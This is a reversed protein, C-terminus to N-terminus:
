RWARPRHCDHDAAAAAARGCKPPAPGSPGAARDREAELLAMLPDLPVLPYLDLVVRYGFEAVPKLAFLDPKVEVKLDFVVRVTDVAKRGLRIGSIFPDSAHVRGPLQVLESSLDIGDLDLVLRDPNRLVFFNHPIPASSEVIVRTYEQAPWVRASGVRIPQAMAVPIAGFAAPAVLWQLLRRRQWSVRIVAPNASRRHRRSM